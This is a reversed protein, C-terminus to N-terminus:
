RARPLDGWMARPMLVELADRAVSRADKSQADLTHWGGEEAFTRYTDYVGSQYTLFRAETDGTVHENAGLEADTYDKKRKLCAEPSADLFFVVDGKPLHEFVTKVLAADFNEKTLFRAMIKYYWGDMFVFDYAETKERLINNAMITYWAAHLFLWGHDTVEHVPNGVGNKWLIKKFNGTIDQLYDSSYDTSKKSLMCASKGTESNVIDCAHHAVTTKGSGDIGEFCIMQGM